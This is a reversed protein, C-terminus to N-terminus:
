KIYKKNSHHFLAMGGKKLIRGAERIYSDKVRPLNEGTAAEMQSRVYSDAADIYDDIAMSDINKHFLAVVDKGTMGNKLNISMSAFLMEMMSTINKENAKSINMASELALNDDFLMPFSMLLGKTYKSISGGIYNNKGMQSKEEAKDAAAKAMGAFLDAFEGENLISRM